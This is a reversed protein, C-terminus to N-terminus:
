VKKGNYRPFTNGGGGDQREEVRPTLFYKNIKTKWTVYLTRM